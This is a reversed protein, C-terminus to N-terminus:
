LFPISFPDLTTVEQEIKYSKGDAQPPKRLSILVWYLFADDFGILSDLHRSTSCHLNTILACGWANHHFVDNSIDIQFSATPFLLRDFLASSRSSCDSNGFSKKQPMKKAFTESLMWFLLGFQRSFSQLLKWQKYKLLLTTQIDTPFHLTSTNRTFYTMFPKLGYDYEIGYCFHM